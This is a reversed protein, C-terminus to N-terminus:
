VCLEGEMGKRRGECEGKEMENDRGEGVRRVRVDGGVKM